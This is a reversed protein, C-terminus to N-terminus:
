KVLNITYFFLHSFPSQHHSIPSKKNSKPSFHHSNKLFPYKELNKVCKLVYTMVIYIYIDYIECQLIKM